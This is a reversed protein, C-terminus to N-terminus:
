TLRCLEEKQEFLLKRLKRIYKSKIKKPFYKIYNVRILRKSLKSNLHLLKLIYDRRIKIRERSYCGMRTCDFSTIIKIKQWAKIM